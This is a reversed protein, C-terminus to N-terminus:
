TRHWLGPANRLGRRCGDLVRDADLGRLVSVLEAPATGAGELLELTRRQWRRAETASAQATEAMLWTCLWSSPNDEHVAWLRRRAEAFRRASLDCFARLLEGTEDDAAIACADDFQGEDALVAAAANDAAVSGLARLRETRDAAIFQPDLLSALQWLAPGPAPSSVVAGNSDLMVCGEVHPPGIPLGIALADVISLVLVGHEGLVACLQQVMPRAVEPRFHHVVDRCVVLDFPGPPPALRLDGHAVRLCALLGSDVDFGGAAPTLWRQLGGPVDALRRAPLRQRRADACAVLSVDSALVDIDIDSAAALMLLSLPEALGGAGACWASFRRGRKGQTAAGLGAVLGAAGRLVRDDSGTALHLLAGDDNEVVSGALSREVEVSHPRLGLRTRVASSANGDM